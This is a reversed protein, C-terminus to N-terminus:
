LFDGFFVDRMVTLVCADFVCVACFCVQEKLMDENSAMLAGNVSYSPMNQQEKTAYLVEDM